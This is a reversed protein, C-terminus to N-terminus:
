RRYRSSSRRSPAPAVPPQNTTVSAKPFLSDLTVGIQSPPSKRIPVIQLTPRTEYAALDRQEVLRQIEEFLSESCSVILESTRVDVALTLRIGPSRVPVASANSRGRDDDDDGRRSRERARVAPDELYDKYIERLMGAVQEVDAYRVPITRPVRERASEPLETADLHELLREVDNVQQPSGSVFLANTRSDPVIQLPMPRPDYPVAGVSAFGGRAGSTTNQPVLELLSAATEKADAARLYFVTWQTRQPMRRVLERITQEVEDLADEDSSYLFLEGDRVEINVRPTGNRISKEHSGAEQRGETPIEAVQTEFRGDREEARRYDARLVQVEPTPLSESTRASTRRNVDDKKSQRTETPRRGNSKGPAEHSPEGPVVVRIRNDFESDDALLREVARAIDEANRTGVPVRRFRGDQVGRINFTGNEGYAALTQRIQEVQSTTGRVILTRTLPEPQIVPREDRDENEFLGSLLTSMTYPDFRKLQIVQMSGSGGVGGGDLTRILDEVKRHEQLTAMIHIADHRDDENVVVGPMVVSLTKAVEEEDAEDIYYVRLFPGSNELQWEDFSRGGNENTDITTLIEEVLAVGTPTATVLLCNTRPVASVRMNASLNALLPPPGAPRRDDDDDDDRGRSRSSRRLEYGARSVNVTGGSLGFLNRVQREADSAPITKLPFSRFVLKDEEVPVVADDLMAVVERLNRGFGQVVLAQSIDLAAARGHPGLVQAIEEAAEDPDIGNLPLVLRILERDGRNKLEDVTITPILNPLMGNDTKLVVLFQDRRLVVYGRPLLYGNLVDLAEPITFQRDDYYNFAGEPVDTLDLTLGAWDAFQQLVVDWPADQFNFSVLSQEGSGGNRSPKAGPREDASDDIAAHETTHNKAVPNEAPQNSDTSEEAQAQDAEPQEDAGVVSAVLFGILPLAFAIKRSARTAVALKIM